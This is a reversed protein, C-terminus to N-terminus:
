TATACSPRRVESIATRSSSATIQEDGLDILRYRAGTAVEEVMADIFDPWPGTPSVTAVDLAPLVADAVEVQRMTGTALAEKVLQLLRVPDGSLHNGRHSPM